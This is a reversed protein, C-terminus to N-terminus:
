LFIQQLYINKKKGLTLRFSKKEYIQLLYQKHSSPSPRMLRYLVYIETEVM